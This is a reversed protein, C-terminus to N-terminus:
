RNEEYSILPLTIIVDTGKNEESKININGNINTVIWKAISLGLGSGNKRRSRAKDIRYFRTFVKDIEEKKMGIGQDKVKVSVINKDKDIKVAIIIKSQSDSYNVANDLLIMLLQIFKDEDVKAIVKNYSAYMYVSINKKNAIPQIKEISEKVLHLIDIEKNNFPIQGLDAKTLILLDGVMKDMRNIESKAYDFWLEQSKVTEEENSQILELNTKIVAIPTRLEHSADAIFQKQNDITEKIPILAKDATYFGGILSIVVGIIIAFIIVSLIEKLNDHENQTNKLLLLIQMNGDDDLTISTCSRLTLQEHDYNTFVYKGDQEKIEIKEKDADAFYSYAINKPISKDINFDGYKFITKFNDDFFVLECRNEELQQIFYKLDENYSLSNDISQFETKSFRKAQYLLNILENDTNQSFSYYSFVYIFIAMLILIFLLVFTNTLILKNRIKNIM